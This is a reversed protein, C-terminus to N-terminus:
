KTPRIRSLLIIVIVFILALAISYQLPIFYATALSALILGVGMYYYRDGRKLLFISSVVCWAGTVLLFFALSGLLNLIGLLALIITVLAIVIVGLGLGIRM